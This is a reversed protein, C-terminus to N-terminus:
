GMCGQCPQVGTHGQHDCHPRSPQSGLGPHSHVGPVACEFLTLYQISLLHHAVHVCWWRGEARQAHMHNHCCADASLQACTHVHGPWLQGNLVVCCVSLHLYPRVQIHGDAFLDEVLTRDARTMGAHHIAFGFPLLDRLESSKVAEAETQVVICVCCTYPILMAHWLGCSMADSCAVHALCWSM